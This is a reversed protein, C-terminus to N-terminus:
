TAQPPPTMHGTTTGAATFTAVRAPYSCALPARKPVRTALSITARLLATPGRSRHSAACAASLGCPQAAAGPKNTVKVPEDNITKARWSASVDPDGNLGFQVM